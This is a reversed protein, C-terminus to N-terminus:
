TRERIIMAGINYKCNEYYYILVAGRQDEARRKESVFLWLVGERPRPTTGINIFQAVLKTNGGAIVLVIM